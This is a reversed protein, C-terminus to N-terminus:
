KVLALINRVVLIKKLSIMEHYELWIGMINGHYEEYEWSIGMINRMNGHYELRIGM